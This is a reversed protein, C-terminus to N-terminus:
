SPSHNRRATTTRRHRMAFASGSPRRLLWTARDGFLGLVLGATRRHVGGPPPRIRASSSYTMSNCIDVSTLTGLAPDFGPVEMWVASGSADPPPMDAHVTLEAGYAQTALFLLAGSFLARLRQMSNGKTHFCAGPLAREASPRGRVVSKGARRPVPPTISTAAPVDPPTCQVTRLLPANCHEPVRRVAAAPGRTPRAPKCRKSRIRWGRSETRAATAPASPTDASREIAPRRRARSASPRCPHTGHSPPSPAPVVDRCIRKSRRCKARPDARVSRSHLHRSRRYSRCRRLRSRCRSSSPPSPRRRAPRAQCGPVQRQPV